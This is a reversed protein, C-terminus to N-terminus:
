HVESHDIESSGFFTAAGPAHITRTMPRLPMAEEENIMGLNDNLYIPRTVSKALSNASRDLVSEYNPM